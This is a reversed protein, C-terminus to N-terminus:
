SVSLGQFVPSDKIFRHYYSALGLFYRVGKVDMPSPFLAISDVIKKNTKLRTPTVVHGLYGVERRAFYCKAPKLKLKAEQIHKIVLQLHSLHDELTCSFILVDDIYVAVFDPGAEPNLGALVGQMLRQIISLANTLEFPMVLLEYPGQPTM